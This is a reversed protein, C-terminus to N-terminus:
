RGFFAAVLNKWAERLSRYRSRVKVAGRRIEQKVAREREARRIDAYLRERPTFPRTKM